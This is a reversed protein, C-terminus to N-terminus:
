LVEFAFFCEILSTEISNIDQHSFTMMLKNNTRYNTTYQVTNFPM